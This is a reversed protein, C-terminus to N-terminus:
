PQEGHRSADLAAIDGAIQHRRAGAFWAPLEVIAPPLRQYLLLAKGDGITRVDGPTMVRELHDSRQVGRGSSSSSVTRQPRRYEGALRSIDELFDSEKSGGMVLACTASNLIEKAGDPQWRAKMQGWGQPMLCLSIGRGGSDSMYTPLKPLAATHAPEDLVVSLPPDLRGARAHQSARRATHMIEDVLATVFPGASNAAGETLLYLSDTSDLFADIDFGVHPGPTCIAAIRPTDLPSLVLQLTGVIGGVMEGATNVSLGRLRMAWDPRAVDLLEAPAPDALNHLWRPLVDMRHGGLAAAMLWCRLVDNAQGAFFDGGRVSGLPRAGVIAEARRIAVQPDACGTLPDWKLPLWSADLPDAIGEGDLVWVNGVDDRRAATAALVDAKTSTAVLAGPAELIRPIGVATTKGGRPPAVAITSDEWKAYLPVRRPGVLTGITPGYQHMGIRRAARARRPLRAVPRTTTASRAIAAARIPALQAATASGALHRRGPRHSWIAWALWWVGVGLMAAIAAAAGRRWREGVLAGSLARHVALAAAIDAVTAAAWVAATTWVPWRGLRPTGVPKPRGATSRTPNSTRTRGMTATM